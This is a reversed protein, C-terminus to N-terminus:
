RKKELVAYFELDNIATEHYRTCIFDIYGLEFLLNITEFFSKPTFQWCHVDIYGGNAADFHKLGASWRSKINEGFVGHDGRWHRNAENHTTLSFHELVQLKGPKTRSEEHAQIIETFRSEPFFHDFCYRKDPIILWYKSGINKACNSVQNLHRILDPQHEICHASFVVDFKENIISLDGNKDFFDINPVTEPDLNAGIAKQRLEDTNCLDFYKCNKGTILPKNLPGIELIGGESHAEIEKAFIQRTIQNNIFYEADVDMLQLRSEFKGHKSFHDLGSIFTGSQIADLVDRNAALYGKESFNSDTAIVLKAM